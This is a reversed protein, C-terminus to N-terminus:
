SGGLPNATQNPEPHVDFTPHRETALGFQEYLTQAYRNADLEATPGLGYRSIATRQVRVIESLQRMNFNGVTVSRQHRRHSNLSRPSFAIAGQEMLHLYTVWDGAHRHSQIEAAHGDLVAALAERRFLVASVNPITNKIHLASAIEERGEVIYPRTWHERDIDSVYDLYHESLVRGDGDIQRSQCYSMVVDPRSFASLLEALFEPDALDDAEAIWVFEGRAMEVGRQWQRFVSGSNTENIVLTSPIPSTELFDRIRGVSQDSSADDLVILEYPAITQSGISALRETIYAAYNYNPVIVSVRPLPRGAMELVDHLYHRFSFEREVIDRGTRGFREARAPEAFLEAAADAMADTDFAPVLMGCGRAILGDTGGVGSFSVVPLEADLAEMVVSPFPDERSTLLYVDAAAYFDHPQDTRGPLLIRDKLGAAAIRRVQADAV